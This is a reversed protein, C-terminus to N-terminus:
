VAALLTDAAHNIAAMRQLSGGARDPHYKLALKRRREKIADETLPDGPGFGLVSRAKRRALEDPDVPPPRPRPPPRPPPPRTAHEPRPPLPRVRAHVGPDQIGQLVTRMTERTANEITVRRIRGTEFFEDVMGFIQDFLGAVGVPQPQEVHRAQAELVVIRHRQCLM